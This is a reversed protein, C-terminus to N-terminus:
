TMPCSGPTKDTLRLETDGQSHICHHVPGSHVKDEVVVRSVNKRNHWKCGTCLLGDDTKLPGERM